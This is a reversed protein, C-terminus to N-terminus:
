KRKLDSVTKDMFNIDEHENFTTNSKIQERLQILDQKDLQKAKIYEQFNKEKLNRVDFVRTIMHIPIPNKSGSSKLFRVTPDFSMTCGNDFAPIFYRKDAPCELVIDGYKLAVGGLYWNIGKNNNYKIGNEEFEYYEDNDEMGIIMGNEKYMEFMEYSIARYAHDPKLQYGNIDKVPHDRGAIRKDSITLTEGNMIKEQVAKLQPNNSLPMNESNYLEM